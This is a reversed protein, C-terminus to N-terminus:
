SNENCIKEAVSRSTKICEQIRDIEAQVSPASVSRPKYTLHHPLVPPQGMVIQLPALGTTENPTVNYSFCAPAVWNQWDVHNSDISTKIIKVLTGNFRETTANM